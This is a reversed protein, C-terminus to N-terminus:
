GLREAEHNADVGLASMTVHCVFQYINRKTTSPPIDAALVSNVVECSASRTYDIGGDAHLLLTCTCKYFFM